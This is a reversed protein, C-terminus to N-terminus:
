RLEQLVCGYRESVHKAQNTRWLGKVTVTRAKRDVKVTQIPVYQRAHNRCFTENHKLVFVCTCMEKSYFSSIISPFVKVHSWNAGAWIGVVLLLAGLVRGLWKLAKKM